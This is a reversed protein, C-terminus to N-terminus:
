FSEHGDGSPAAFGDLDVYDFGARGTDPDKGELVRVVKRQIGWTTLMHHVRGTIVRRAGGVGGAEIRPGTALTVSPYTVFAPDGISTPLDGRVVKQRPSQHPLPQM